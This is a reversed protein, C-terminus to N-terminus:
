PIKLQEYFVKQSYTNFFPCFAELPIYLLIQVKKTWQNNTLFEELIRSISRPPHYTRVACAFCLKTNVVHSSYHILHVMSNWYLLYGLSSSTGVFFAHCLTKFAKRMDLFPASVVKVWCIWQCIVTFGLCSVKM